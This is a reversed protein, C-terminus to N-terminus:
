QTSALEVLQDTIPLVTPAMGTKDAQEWWARFGPKRAMILISGELGREEIDEALTRVLGSDRAEIATVTRALIVRMLLDFRVREMADLSSFDSLGRVYTDMAVPDTALELQWGTLQNGMEQTTSILAQTNTTRLELGLFVISAIVGVNAVLGVTQGLDIKKM